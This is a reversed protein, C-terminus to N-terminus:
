MRPSYRAQRLSRLMITSIAEEEKKGKIASIISQLAKPHVEELDGKITYGFTSVFKGLEQMKESSPLKM